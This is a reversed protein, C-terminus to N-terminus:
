DTLEYVRRRPDEPDPCRDAIDAEILYDLGSRATKDPLLMKRRLEELSCPGDEQLVIAVCKASPPLERLEDRHTRLETM